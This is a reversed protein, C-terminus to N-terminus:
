TTKDSTVRQLKYAKGCKALLAQGDTENFYKTFIKIPTNIPFNIIAAMINSASIRSAM